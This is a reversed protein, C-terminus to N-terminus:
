ILGLDEVKKTLTNVENRLFQCVKFLTSVISYPDVGDEDRLKQPVGEALLGVKPKDYIGAELNAILHYTWVPTTDLLYLAEEDSFPKINDKTKVSSGTPFGSARIPMYTNGDNVKTVRAENDSQIYAYGGSARLVAYGTAEFVSNGEAYYNSARMPVYVDTTGTKTARVEGASTPRIYVHVSGTSPNIDFYDGKFGAARVPRWVLPQVDSMGVSTAYVEGNTGLYLNTGTNNGIGDFYGRAGRVNQWNGTTGTAAFRVEGGSKPRVYVNIGGGVPNVDIANTYLFDTGDLGNVYIAGGSIEIGVLKGTTISGADLNAIAANGFQTLVWKTGDWRSIRYDNSTDFWLDNIQFNTGVPKTPQYFNMNKGNASALAGTATNKAQNAAELATNATSEAENAIQTSNTFAIDVSGLIAM